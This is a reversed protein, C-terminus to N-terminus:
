LGNTKNAVSNGKFVHEPMSRWQTSVFMKSAEPAEYHVFRVRFFGVFPALLAHCCAFSTIDLQEAEAALPRLAANFFSKAAKIYL